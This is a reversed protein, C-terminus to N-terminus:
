YESYLLIFTQHHTLMINWQSGRMTIPMGDYATFSGRPFCQMYLAPETLM